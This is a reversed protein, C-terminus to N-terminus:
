VHISNFHLQLASIARPARHSRQTTIYRTWNPCGKDSLDGLFRIFNRTSVDVCEEEDKFNADPLAQACWGFATMAGGETKAARATYSLM